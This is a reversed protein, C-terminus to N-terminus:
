MAKLLDFDPPAEVNITIDWKKGVSLGEITEKAEASQPALNFSYGDESVSFGSGKIRFATFMKSLIQKNIIEVADRKPFYQPSLTTTFHASEFTGQEELNQAALKVVITM